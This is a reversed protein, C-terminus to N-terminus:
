FHVSSPLVQAGEATIGRERCQTFLAPLLAPELDVLLNFLNRRKLQTLAAALSGEGDEVQVVATVVLRHQSHTVQRAHFERGAKTFSAVLAPLVPSYRQYLLAAGSWNAAVAYDLVAQAVQVVTLPSFAFFPNSPPSLLQLM